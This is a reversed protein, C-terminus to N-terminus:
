IFNSFDRWCKQAEIKSGLKINFDMIQLLTYQPLLTLNIDSTPKSIHTKIIEMNFNGNKQATVQLGISLCKGKIGSVYSQQLSFM